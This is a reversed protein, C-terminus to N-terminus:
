DAEVVRVNRGLMETAGQLVQMEYGQVDVKLGVPATDKFLQNRLLDLRTVNVMETRVYKSGPSAAITRDTMPLLSSSYSLGSVNMSRKEESNGLALRKCEWAKDPAAYRSLKAFAESLPEFSVIRGTYGDARLEKAYQGINAGVDLAVSISKEDFVRM